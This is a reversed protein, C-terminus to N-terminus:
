YRIQVLFTSSQGWIACKFPATGADNNLWIALNENKCILHWLLAAVLICLYKTPYQGVYKSNEM